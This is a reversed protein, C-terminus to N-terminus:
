RGRGVERQGKGGDCHGLSWRGQGGHRRAPLRTVLKLSGRGARAAVHPLCRYLLGLKPTRYLGRSGRNGCRYPHSLFAREPRLALPVQLGRRQTSAWHRARPLHLRRSGAGRTPVATPVVQAGQPSIKGARQWAGSWSRIGDAWPMSPSGMWAPGGEM